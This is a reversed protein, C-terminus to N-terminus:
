GKFTEAVVKNSTDELNDYYSNTTLMSNSLSTFVQQHRTFMLWLETKEAFQFKTAKQVTINQSDLCVKSM